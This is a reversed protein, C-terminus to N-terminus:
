NKAHVIGISEAYSIKGAEYKKWWHAYRNIGESLSVKPMYALAERAASIDLTQSYAMRGVMERTFPAETRALTGCGFEMAGAIVYAVSYPISRIRLNLNLYTSLLEVVKHWTMAEGNTINFKRGSLEKNANLALYVSDVANDIYTLDILSSGANPLYITGSKSARLIRGLVKQDGPGIIARPRLTICSLGKETAEDILNDAIGKTAAYPTKPKPLPDSERIDLHHKYNFYLSPTSLYVLREIGESLCADIVHKTGLVNTRYFASYSGSRANLAGAHVVREQDLCASHVAKADTLDVNLFHIGQKELEAGISKNRGLATVEHGLSKLKLACHRGLFGTGGTILVKM